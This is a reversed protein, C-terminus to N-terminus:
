RAYVSGMPVKIVNQRTTFGPPIMRNTTGSRSAITIARECREVVECLVMFQSRVERTICVIDLVGFKDIM